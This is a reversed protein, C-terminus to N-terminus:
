YAHQNLSLYANHAWGVTGSPHMVKRWKGQAKLVKVTTGHAMKGLVNYATSPGTRLNLAGHKPAYVYRIHHAPQPKPHVAPYQSMYNSHAWGVNGYADKVKFWKGPTALVKMVSGHPMEARINYATSPGARLNLFGDKPADVFLTTAAAASALFVASLFTLIRLM